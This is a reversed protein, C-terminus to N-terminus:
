IISRDIMCLCHVIARFVEVKFKGATRPQATSAYVISMPQPLYLM